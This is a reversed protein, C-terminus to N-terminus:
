RSDEPEDSEEYEEEVFRNFLDDEMEHGYIVCDKMNGSEGVWHIYFECGRLLYMDRQLTYADVGTSIFLYLGDRLTLLRVMDVTGPSVPPPRDAM